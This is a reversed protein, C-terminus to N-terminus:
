DDNHAEENEDVVGFVVRVWLSCGQCGVTIEGDKEAAELEPETLVYCNESGCRCPFSWTNKADDFTFDDLDVVELGLHSSQEGSISNLQTAHSLALSKDYEARLSPSALTKYALIIEDVTPKHGLNQKTNNLSTKSSELDSIKDPHHALLTQHYAQKVERASPPNKPNFSLSLTDYHTRTHKSVM